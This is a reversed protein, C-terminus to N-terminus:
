EHCFKAGTLFHKRGCFWCRIEFKFLESNEFKLLKSIDFGNLKNFTLTAMM